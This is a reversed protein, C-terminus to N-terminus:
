YRQAEFATEAVFPAGANQLATRTLVAKTPDEVEQLRIVVTATKWKIAERFRPERVACEL